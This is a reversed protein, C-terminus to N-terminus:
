KNVPCCVPGRLWQSDGCFFRLAPFSAASPTPAALRVPLPPRPFPFSLLPSPPEPLPTGTVLGRTPCSGLPIPTAGPPSAARVIGAARGPAPPEWREKGSGPGPEQGMEQGMEQPPLPPVAAHEPGEARGQEGPSGMAGPIFLCLCPSVADGECLQSGSGGLQSLAPPPCLLTRHSAPTTQQAPAMVSLEPIM